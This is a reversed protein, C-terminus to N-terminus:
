GRNLNRIFVELMKKAVTKYSFREKIWETITSESFTVSGQLVMEIAKALLRPDKKNVVIGGYPPILEPIGGSAYAVIPRGMAMAELVVSPCADTELSPVVVLDSVCHLERISGMNLKGIYKVNRSLNLKSLLEFCLRPYGKPNEADFNGMPGAIIVKFRYDKQKLIRLALLLHHIGKEPVIRGAFTIVFDTDEVGLRIRKETKESQTCPKFFETDVANYAVDVKNPDVKLMKVIVHQRIYESVALHINYVNALVKNIEYYRPINHYHRVILSNEGSLHKYIPPAFSTTTYHSHIIDIKGYHKKIKNFVYLLLTTLSLSKRFLNAKPSIPLEHVFIEEDSTTEAERKITVLHVEAGLKKLAKSIGYM